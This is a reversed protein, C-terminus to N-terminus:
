EEEEDEDRELISKLHNYILEIESMKKEISKFSWFWSQKAIGIARDMLEQNLQQEAIDLQMAGMIDSEDIFAYATAMEDDSMENEENYINFEEDDSDDSYFRKM